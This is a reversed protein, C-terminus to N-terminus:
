GEEINIEELIRKIDTLGDAARYILPYSNEDPEDLDPVMVTVCGASSASKMGNLSDELALCEATKLGLRKAAEIYIDPAPKGHEVMAACVIEDFYEFLSLKKLHKSAREYPTATALAIKYGNGKLYELMEKAGSKAEIGNEEIYKDMLEVRKAHVAKYDFDEGFYGKLKEAALPRAMSRISLAHKTEMPYGYFNAAECWFRVYLKESDLIVGDMDSIVGKIKKNEM